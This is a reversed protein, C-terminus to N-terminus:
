SCSMLESSNVAPPQLAAVAREDYPALAPAVIKIKPPEFSSDCRRLDDSLSSNSLELVSLQCEARLLEVAKALRTSEAVMVRDLTRNYLLISQNRCSAYDATVIGIESKWACYAKVHMTAAFSCNVASLKAEVDAKTENVKFENYTENFREFFTLGDFIFDEMAQGAALTPPMADTPPNQASLWGSFEASCSYKKDLLSKELAECQSRAQQLASTAEGMSSLTASRSALDDDCQRLVKAHFNLLRQDEAFDATLSPIEVDQLTKKLGGITSRHATPIGQLSKALSVLADVLGGILTLSVNRPVPLLATEDVALTDFSPLKLGTGRLQAIATSLSSSPMQNTENVLPKLTVIIGGAGGQARARMLSSLLSAHQELTVQESSQTQPAPRVDVCEVKKERLTASCEKLFQETKPGVVTAFDGDLSLPTSEAIGALPACAIPIPEVCKSWKGAPNTESFAADTACWTYSSYTWDGTCLAPYKKSRFTFPVCAKGDVTCVTGDKQCTAATLSGDSCSSPGSVKYGTNCEPQCTSGSALSSTCDGVSGQSPAASADCPRPPSTCESPLPDVCM